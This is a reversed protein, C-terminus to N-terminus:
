NEMQNLKRWLTSKSIGLIRAAAAKNGNTDKLVRKILEIEKHYLLDKDNEPVLVQDNMTEQLVDIIDEKELYNEKANVIVREVINKLERINGPWEYNILIEYAKSDISPKKINLKICLKNIYYDLLLPIDKKRERLSPLNVKLVNIRYYLDDRFKKESVLAFLDKNTACIIRVDVPIIKEGGVRIIKREEIARLLRVQVWPSIEGIEDLFLSGNHALEFLGTKGGKKAGTFAGETYGFLESELLSEPLSACNIAVFPKGKRNSANHISQAILEKGTGSEGYILITSDLNTYNECKKIVNEMPSDNSFIINKFQYIAIHGKEYLNKRVTNELEQLESVKQISIIAGTNKDNILVPNLNCVYKTGNLNRIEGIWKKSDKITDFLDDGFIKPDIKNNKLNINLIKEATINYEKINGLKDISIIGESITDLITKLREGWEREKHIAELVKEAEKLAEYVAHKPSCLLVGPVGIKEAYEVALKAGIIIKAGKEKATFVKEYVEKESNVIYKKVKVNLIPGLIEVGNVLPNTFGVVAIEDSIQKAKHLMMIVEFDTIPINVIPLNIGSQQLKTTTGGRSVIVKTGDEILKKAELVADDLFAHVTKIPYKLETKLNNVVNFLEIDPAIVVIEVIDTMMIGGIIRITRKKYKNRLLLWYRYYFGKNNFNDISDQVYVSSSYGIAHQCYDAYGSVAYQLSQPYM